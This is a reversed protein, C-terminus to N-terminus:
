YGFRQIEQERTMFHDPGMCLEASMGHECTPHLYEMLRFQSPTFPGTEPFTTLVVDEPWNARADFVLEEIGGDFYLAGPNEDMFAQRKREFYAIVDGADNFHALCRQWGGNTWLIVSTKAKPEATAPM